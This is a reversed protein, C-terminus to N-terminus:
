DASGKRLMLLRLFRGKGGKKVHFFVLAAAALSGGAAVLMDKMTDHLGIDIYGPWVIGNITVSGIVASVPVNHGEPNLLVSNIRSVYVDKQMDTSFICDMGYEFFEWLVSIAMAFCLSAVAAYIPKPKMPVRDGGNLIDILSYGVVAIVFGSVIHLMTDWGPVSVYYEELEGMINAGFVLLVVIIELADPVELKISREIFSPIMFLFLTLVCFFANSWNREIVAATLLALIALRLLLFVAFRVPHKKIKDGFNPSKM